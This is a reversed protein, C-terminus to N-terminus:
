MGVCLTVLVVSLRDSFTSWIAYQIPFANVVGCIYSLPSVPLITFSVLISAAQITINVIRDSLIGGCANSIDFQFQQIFIARQKINTLDAINLNLKLSSRVSIFAVNNVFVKHGFIGFNTFNTTGGNNNSGTTTDTPPCDNTICNVTYDNLGLISIVNYSELPTNVVPNYATNFDLLLDHVDSTCFGHQDNPNINSPFSSYGTFM